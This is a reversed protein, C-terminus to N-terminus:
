FRKPKGIGAGAGTGAALVAVAEVVMSGASEEVAV